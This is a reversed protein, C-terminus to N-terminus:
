ANAHIQYLCVAPAIAVRSVGGSRLPAIWERSPVETIFRFSRM